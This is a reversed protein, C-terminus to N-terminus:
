IYLIHYMIERTLIDIYIYICIYIYMYIYIYIYICARVCMSTYIYIQIYLLTLVLAHDHSRGDICPPSSEYPGKEKYTMKLLLARYKTARNHFIMQLKPSGILRRWGTDTLATSMYLIEAHTHICIHKHGHTHLARPTIPKPKPNLDSTWTQPKPQTQWKRAM